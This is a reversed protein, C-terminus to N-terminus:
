CAQLWERTAKDWITSLVLRYGLLLSSAHWCCRAGPSSAPLFKRAGGPALIGTESSSHRLRGERDLEMSRDRDRPFAHYLFSYFLLQLGWPVMLCVQLLLLLSFTLCFCLFQQMAVTGCQTPM